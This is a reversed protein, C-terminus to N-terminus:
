KKKIQELIKKHHILGNKLQRESGQWCKEIGRKYFQPVEGFCITEYIKNLCFIRLCHKTSRCCHIFM